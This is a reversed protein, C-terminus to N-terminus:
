SRVRRNRTAAGPVAAGTCGRWGPPTRPEVPWSEQPSGHGGACRGFRARVIFLTFGHPGFSEVGVIGGLPM